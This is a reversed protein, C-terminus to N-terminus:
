SDIYFRGIAYGYTNVAVAEASVDIEEVRFGPADTVLDAEDVTNVSQLDIVNGVDAQVILATAEVAVAFRLGAEYRVYQIDLDGVSGASNDCDATAVGLLEHTFATVANSAYGDVDHLVDGKSISVVAAGRTALDRSLIEDICVFGSAMYRNIKGM